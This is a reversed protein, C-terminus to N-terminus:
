YPSWRAAERRVGATPALIEHRVQIEEPAIGDARLMLGSFEFDDIDGPTPGPGSVVCVQHPGAELTVSYSTSIATASSAGYNQRLVMPLMVSHDDIQMRNGAEETNRLGQVAVVANAARPLHVLACYSPGRAGDADFSQASFSNDGLHVPGRTLAVWREAPPQAIVLQPRAAACSALAISTSLALSPILKM